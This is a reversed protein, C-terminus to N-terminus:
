MTSLLTKAVLEKLYSAVRPMLERYLDNYFDFALAGDFGAAALARLVAALDIDGEWPVLHRHVDGMNEIHGHVIRGGLSDISSPIDPDLLHSHGIDFNCCMAPDGDLDEVLRLFSATTDIRHGPEPELALRVGSAAAIDLMGRLRRVLEAYGGDPTESRAGSAIIFVDTGFRRTKAIGKKIVNYVDDNGVFDVHCGIASVTLGNDCALAAMHDACYDELLDPRVHFLKDEICFEFGDFGAERFLPVIEDMSHAISMMQPRGCILM